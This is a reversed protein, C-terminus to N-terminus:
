AGMAPEIMEILPRIEHINHPEKLAKYFVSAITDSVTPGLLKQYILVDKEKKGKM